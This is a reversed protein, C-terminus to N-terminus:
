RPGPARRGVAVLYEGWGLMRDIRRFTGRYLRLSWHGGSPERSYPRAQARDCGEERLLRELHNPQFVFTHERPSRFPSAQGRALKALRVWAFQSMWVNETTLAVVGGPKVAKVLSRVFARPDPVHEIVQLSLVADFAADEPGFRAGEAVDLGKSRCFAVASASLDCGHVDFGRDALVSLMSGHGCGVEGIRAGLGPPFDAWLQEFLPLEYRPYDDVNSRWHAEAELPHREYYADRYYRAMEEESAQPQSVLLGCGACRAQSFHLEAPSAPEASFPRLDTGGCVPCRTVLRM